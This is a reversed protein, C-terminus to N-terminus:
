RPTILVRRVGKAPRTVEIVEGPKEMDPVCTTVPANHPLVSVELLRGAIERKRENPTEAWRARFAEASAVIGAVGGTLFQEAISAWDEADAQVLAASLEADTSEYESELAEVARRAARRSVDTRAHAEVETAHEIQGALDARQLRLRTVAGDDPTQGQRLMLQERVAETVHDEIIQQSITPHSGGGPREACTYFSQKYGRSTVVKGRMRGGCTSCKAVSTLWWRSVPRGPNVNRDPDRLLAVVQEWTERPVIPQILSHEQVVGKRVLLGANRERLLARRVNIPQWQRDRPTPIGADNLWRAIARIPEGALVRAHMDRLIAAESERLTIGDPEWGFVRHARHPIGQAARQDAARKQREAKRRGEFRAIGALMTARFEGDATTLDIEGDVTLVAAGTGTLTVLDGVTRLLRDLDVAVIVDFVGDKADKLMQAWATGAGRAKSASVDDDVYESTLTWDRAAVLASTRERQRDIGLPNERSQRLYIVARKTM